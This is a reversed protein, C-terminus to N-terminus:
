GGRMVAEYTFRLWVAIDRGIREARDYTEHDYGAAELVTTAPIGARLAEFAVVALAAQEQGAQQDLPRGKAYYADAQRRAEDASTRLRRLRELREDHQSQRSLESM